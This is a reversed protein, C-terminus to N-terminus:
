IGGLIRRFLGKKKVPGSEKKPPDAPIPAPKRRWAEEGMGERFFGMQTLCAICFWGGGKLPSFKWNTIDLDYPDCNCVLDVCTQGSM